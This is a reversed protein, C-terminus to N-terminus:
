EGDVLEGLGETILDFAEAMLVGLEFDENLLWPATAAQLAGSRAGIM